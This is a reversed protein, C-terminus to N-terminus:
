LIEILKVDIARIVFAGYGTSGNFILRKRLQLQVDQGSKLKVFATVKDKEEAPRLSLTAIDRLQITVTANGREGEIVTQGDLSFHELRTDVGSKDTVRAKIEEEVQPVTGAPAGGLNGMGTLFLAAVLILLLYKISPM